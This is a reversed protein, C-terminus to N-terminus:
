RPIAILPYVIAAILAGVVAGAAVQAVTHDGLRVRSWAVPVTLLAVPWWWPGLALGAIVCSGGLVALHISIKWRITVALCVVIGVLGAVVAALLSRSAGTLLLLGFGILSLLLSVAMVRPRQRRSGVHVDTLRRTRVQYAIFAFPLISGFTIAIIAELLAQRASHASHVALALVLAAVVPAPSLADTVVRALRHGGPGRLM